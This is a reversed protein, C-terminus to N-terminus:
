AIRLIRLTSGEGFMAERGSDAQLTVAIHEGNEIRGMWRSTVPVPADGSDVEFSIAHVRTGLTDAVTNIYIELSVARTVNISIAADCVM